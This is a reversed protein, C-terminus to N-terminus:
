QEELKYLSVKPYASSLGLHPLSYRVAETDFSIKIRWCIYMCAGDRTRLAVSEQRCGEAADKESM